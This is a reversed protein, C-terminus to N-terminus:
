LLYNLHKINPPISL